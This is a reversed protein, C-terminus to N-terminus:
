IEEEIGQAVRQLWADDEEKFAEIQHRVSKCTLEYARFTKKYEEHTVLMKSIAQKTVNLARSITENTYGYKKLAVALLTRARVAPEKKSGSLIDQLLIEEEGEIEIATICASVVVNVIMKLRRQNINM